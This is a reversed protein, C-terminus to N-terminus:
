RWILHVTYSEMKNALDFGFSFLHQFRRWGSVLLGGVASQAPLICYLMLGRRFFINKTLRCGWSPGLYCISRDRPLSLVENAPSSLNGRLTRDDTPVKWARGCRRARPRQLPKLRASWELRCLMLSLCCVKRECNWTEHWKAHKTTEFYVLASVVAGCYERHPLGAFNVREAGTTTCEVFSHM